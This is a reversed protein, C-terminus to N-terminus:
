PKWGADAAVIKDPQYGYDMATRTLANNMFLRPSLGPHRWWVGVNGKAIKGTSKVVSHGPATNSITAQRKAIRGPAGPYHKPVMRQEYKGTVRNKKLKPTKSGIKPAKRFILIQSKGSATVRTKAKPNKAREIGYPDDIWMPIIKGALNKMTFPRIGQEQYWMYSKKATLGIYGKGYLPYISKAGSGSMKPASRKAMRAADMAMRRAVQPDLGPILLYLRDPTSSRVIEQTTLDPM